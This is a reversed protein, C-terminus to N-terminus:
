CLAVCLWGLSSDIFKFSNLAKKKINLEVSCVSNESTELLERSKVDWVYAASAGVKFALWRGRACLGSIASPYTKEAKAPAEETAPLNYFALSGNSRGVVLLKYKRFSRTSHAEWAELNWGSELPIALNM